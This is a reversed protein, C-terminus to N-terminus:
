HLKKKILNVKTKVKSWIVNKLEPDNAILTAGGMIIPGLIGTIWLRIERSTEVQKYTM